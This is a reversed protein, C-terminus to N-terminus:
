RPGYLLSRDLAEEVGKRAKIAAPQANAATSPLTRNLLREALVVGLLKPVDFRHPGGHHGHLAGYRHSGLVRRAIAERPDM